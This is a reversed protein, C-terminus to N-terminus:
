LSERLNRALERVATENRRYWMWQGEKKAEVLGARKLVSMHHSITPQTLRVREEIDGTDADWPVSISARSIANGFPLAPLPMQLMHAHGVIDFRNHCVDLVAIHGITLLGDLGEAASAISTGTPSSYNEEFQMFCARMDKIATSKPRM